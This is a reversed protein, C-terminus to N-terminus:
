EALMSNVLKGSQFRFRNVNSWLKRILMLRKLWRRRRCDERVMELEYADPDIATRSGFDRIHPIILLSYDM